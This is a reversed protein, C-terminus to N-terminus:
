QMVTILISVLTFPHPKSERLARPLSGAMAGVMSRRIVRRLQHMTPAIAQGRGARAAPENALIHARQLLRVRVGMFHYLICFRLSADRPSACVFIWGAQMLSAIGM